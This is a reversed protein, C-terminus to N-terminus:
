NAESVGPASNIIDEALARITPDANDGMNDLDKRLEIAFRARGPGLTGTSRRLTESVKGATKEDFFAELYATPPLLENLPNGVILITDSDLVPEGRYRDELLSYPTLVMLDAHNGTWAEVKERLQERREQDEDYTKKTPSPEIIMIDIDSETTTNGKAMSGFIMVSLPPIPWTAIFGRLRTQLRAHATILVEVADWMLHERNAKYTYIHAVKGEIVMGQEVLRTLVKRLGAESTNPTLRLIDSRTMAETTRSLTRLVPGELTMSLTRWPESFDM